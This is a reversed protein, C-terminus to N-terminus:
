VILDTSKVKGSPRMMLSKSRPIGTLSQTELSRPTLYESANRRIGHKYPNFKLSSRSSLVITEQQKKKRECFLKKFTSRFKRSLVCYLIFNFSTNLLIMFNFINGAILSINLQRRTKSQHVNMYILYAATPTQCILFLLVIGILMVTIRNENSISINEQSNTMARRTKQSYYVARILFCNFTAIVVLPLFCFFVASYWAMFTSYTFNNGLNTLETDITINKLCCTTMNFSENKDMFSDAAVTSNQDKTTDTISSQMALADHPHHTKHLKLPPCQEICSEQLSLQYEFTTSMTTLLCFIYVVSIISKARSETCLVKGKIPHCVAIYRELTFSVTLWVSTSSAADCIWHSIGYFRWYLAYKRDHINPYHKFSLLLAFLNYLIDAIALASLYINTSSRMRRRTLVMVSITQGIVGICVVVPVLVRQIWFRCNELIIDTPDTGNM